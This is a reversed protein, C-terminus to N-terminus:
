STGKKQIVANHPLYEARPYCGAARGAVCLWCQCAHMDWHLTMQKEVIAKIAALMTTTQIIEQHLGAIADPCDSLDEVLSELDGTEVRFGGGTFLTIMNM